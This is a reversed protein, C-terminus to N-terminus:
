PSGGVGGCGVRWGIVGLVQSHNFYAMGLVARVSASVMHGVRTGPKDWASMLSGRRELSCETFRSGALALTGWQISRLMYRFPLVMSPDLTEALLRDVGSVVEAGEFDVGMANGPPFMVEALAAVVRAEGESLVARGVAPGPLYVGVGLALVTTTVSGGILLQRRTPRM